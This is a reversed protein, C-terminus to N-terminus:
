RRRMNSRPISSISAPRSNGGSSAKRLIVSNLSARLFLKKPFDPMEPKNMIELRAGDDFSLFYSRFSTKLNHYGENSKAGLYKVFFNRATELDKVYLTIHEIKMTKWLTWVYVEIILVLDIDKTAHFDLGEETM